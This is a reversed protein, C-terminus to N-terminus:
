RLARAPAESERVRSLLLGGAVFLLILALMSYRPNGFWIGFLGFLPPGILVAFKGMLNYFGFFEGAGDAPILRAYFSRSLAQVGGQVLGVLVAISFFEWPQRIMAGWVCVGIYVLLGIYIGRQPGIREGLWGFLIAAPFGVFQTILLAVILENQAFGLARGYAVAMRIVTGVADIYLWYALLFVGVVRFTRLHQITRLLQAVGLAWVRRRVRRSPAPERVLLILPISFVGWWLATALFAATAAATADPFGFAHPNLAAWVCGFYLLGGGLYGMAFGLGSVFHWREPPAVELLLADYFVNAGAFGIMACIYLSAASLWVGGPVASLLGTAASGVVMFVILFRKKAGARDAVAGLVPAALAIILGAAANIWGLRLNSEAAGVGTSWFDQFLLPFFGAMVVTAFASNAWDYFTWGWVARSRLSFKTAPHLFPASDDLEGPTGRARMGSSKEHTM